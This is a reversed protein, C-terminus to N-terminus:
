VHFRAARCGTHASAGNKLSYIYRKTVGLCLQHMYDTPVAFVMDCIVRSIPYDRVINIPLDCFLSSGRHHEKQSQARFSADTRPVISPDYPYAVKGSKCNREPHAEVWVGKEECHECGFYGSYQKVAKVMAEAPADCTSSCLPFSRTVVTCAQKTYTM